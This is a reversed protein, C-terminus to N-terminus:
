YGRFLKFSRHFFFMAAAFSFSLFFLFISEPGVNTDVKVPNDRPPDPPAPRLGGVGGVPNSGMFVPMAMVEGYEVGMLPIGSNDLPVVTFHYAVDNILDPVTTANINGAVSFREAYFGSTLGFRIDYFAANIPSKEWQLQVSGNGPISNVALTPNPQPFPDPPSIPPGPDPNPVPDPDVVPEPQVPEGQLPFVSLTESQESENGNVDIAIVRFFRESESSLDTIDIETIGANTEYMPELFVSNTGMFISYKAVAPTTDDAIPPADWNLMASEIGPTITFNQIAPLVTSESKVIITRTDAFISENDLADKLIIKVSYDGPQQPAVINNGIYTGPTDESETFTATQSITLGEIKAVVEPLNPETQLTVELNTGPTVEGIPQIDIDDLTPPTSDVTFLVPETTKKPEDVYEIALEHEGDTAVTIEQTFLGDSDTETQEVPLDDLIISVSLGPEGSGVVMVRTDGITSSAEPTKLLLDKRDEDGPSSDDECDDGICKETVTVTIKGSINSDFSGSDPDFEMVELEHEGATSFEVALDFKKKGQDAPNFSIGNGSGPLTANQDSSFIVISGTYGLVTKDFQDKATVILSGLNSEDLRIPNPTFELEFHDIPGYTEDREGRDFISSPDVEGDFDDGDLEDSVIGQPGFINAYFRNGGQYRNWDSVFFIVKAREQITVGANRDIATFYSVGDAQSRIHFYLEGFENTTGRGIAEITDEARSSVLDIFHGPVPNQHRDRLKILIKAPAINDAPVNDETAIIESHVSSTTDPYVQFSEEPSASYSGGVMYARVNYTGTRKTHFGLFDTEAVGTEDAEEQVEIISGDPKEVRFIVTQGPRGISSRMIASYGAITDTANVSLVALASEFWLCSFVLSLAM